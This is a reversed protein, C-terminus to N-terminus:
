AAADDDRAAPRAKGSRGALLWALGLLAGGPLVVVLTTLLAKKWPSSPAPTKPSPKMIDAIKCRSEEPNIVFRDIQAPHSPLRRTAQDRAPSGAGAPM